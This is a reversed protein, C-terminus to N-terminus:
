GGQLCLHTAVGRHSIFPQTNQNVVSSFYLTM